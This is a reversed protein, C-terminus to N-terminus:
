KQGKLESLRAKIAKLEQELMGAESSLLEAEEKKTPADPTPYYGWFRRWGLGRGGGGRGYATGAGCPGLGRGTGPGSGLPGTGNFRPM